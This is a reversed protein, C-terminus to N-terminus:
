GTTKAQTGMGSEPTTLIPWNWKMAPHWLRSCRPKTTEHKDQQPHTKWTQKKTDKLQM